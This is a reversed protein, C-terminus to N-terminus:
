PMQFSNEQLIKQRKRIRRINFNQFMFCSGKQVLNFVITFTSNSLSIKFCISDNDGLNTFVSQFLSINKCVKKRCKKDEVPVKCSLFKRMCKM